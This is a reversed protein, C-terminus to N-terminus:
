LRVKEMRARVSCAHNYERLDQTGCKPYADYVPPSARLTRLGKDARKTAEQRLYTNLAEVTMGLGFSLVILMGILARWPVLSPQPAMM